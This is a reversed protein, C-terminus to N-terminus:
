WSLPLYCGPENVQQYYHVIHQSSEIFDVNYALFVNVFTRKNNSGPWLSLIAMILKVYTFLLWVCQKATPQLIIEHEGCRILWWIFKMFLAFIKWATSNLQLIIPYFLKDTLCVIHVSCIGPVFNNWPSSQPQAFFTLVFSQSM